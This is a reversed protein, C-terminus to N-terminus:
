ALANMMGTNNVVGEAFLKAILNEVKVGMTLWAKLTPSDQVSAPTELDLVSLAVAVSVLQDEIRVAKCAAAVVAPNVLVISALLRVRVRLLASVPNATEPVETTKDLMLLWASTSLSKAAKTFASSALLCMVATALLAAFDKVRVASSRLLGKMTDPKILDLVLKTLLLPATGVVNGSTALCIESM